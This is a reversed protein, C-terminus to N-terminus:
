CARKALAESQFYYTCFDSLDDSSASLDVNGNQRNNLLAWEAAERALTDAQVHRVDFLNIAAPSLTVTLMSTTEPHTFVYEYGCRFVLLLQSFASPVM